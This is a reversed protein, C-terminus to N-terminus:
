CESKVIREAWAFIGRWSDNGLNLGHGVWFVDLNELLPDYSPVSPPLLVWIRFRVEEIRIYCTYLERSQVEPPRL